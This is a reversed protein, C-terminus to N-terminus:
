QYVYMHVLVMCHTNIVVHCANLQYICAVMYLSAHVEVAFYRHLHLSNVIQAIIYGCTKMYM